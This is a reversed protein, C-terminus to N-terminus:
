QINDIVIAMKAGMEEANRVKTVFPCGGRKIL